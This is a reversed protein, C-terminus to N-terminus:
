KLFIPKCQNPTGMPTPCFYGKWSKGSGPKAERYTMEGHACVQAGSQTAPAPQAAQPAAPAAQAPAPAQGGWEGQFVQATAVLPGTLNTYADRLLDNLATVSAARFVVWPADYGAGLKITATIADNDTDTTNFPAPQNM